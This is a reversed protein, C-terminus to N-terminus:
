RLSQIPPDLAGGCDYTLGQCMKGTAIDWCRQWHTSYKIPHYAVHGGDTCTATDYNPKFMNGDLMFGVGLADMCGKFFGDEGSNVGLYQGCDDDNDMYIQMAKKSFVEIAGLFGDNGLGELNNNKFYIATDAPPRLAWMHERLRQPLFVCDADVKITWDYNLFLRDEKVWKFVQLFVATNVLTTEATDWGAAGTEWAHYVSHADCGFISANNTRATSLLSMESSGPLVVMLCYLSTGAMDEGEPVGNVQYEGRWGGLVKGNWGEPMPVPQSDWTSETVSQVCGNFTEDKVACNYGENCCLSSASCDQGAWACGAEFVYPNEEPEAPTGKEYSRRGLKKGSWDEMGDADPNFSDMCTAWYENKELCFMGLGGRQESCCKSERCDEGPASCPDATCGTADTWMCRDEQPCDEPGGHVYCALACKSEEGTQLWMCRSLSSCEDENSFLWCGDECQDQSWMCNGAGWCADPNGLLDCKQACNGAETWSCRDGPCQTENKFAGCGPLSPSGVSDCSWSDLEFVGYQNWEGHEEGDHVGPECTDVDLCEGWAKNKLYCQLGNDGGNVCCKSQACNQGAAACEVEEDLGTIAEMAGTTQSAHRAGLAAVGLVGVLAGAAVRYARTSQAPLDGEEDTPVVLREVDSDVGLDRAIV